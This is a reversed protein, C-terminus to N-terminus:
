GRKYAPIPTLITHANSATIGARTAAELITKQQERHAAVRHATSCYRQWRRHAEYMAGCYDCPRLSM